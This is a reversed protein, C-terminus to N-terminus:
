RKINNVVQMLLVCVCVCVCVCVNKVYIKMYIEVYIKVYIKLSCFNIELSSNNPVFKHEKITRM